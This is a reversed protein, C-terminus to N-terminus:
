KSFSKMIFQVLKNTYRLLTVTFSWLKKYWALIPSIFPYFVNKYVNVLLPYTIQYSKRFREAAEPFYDFASTVIKYMALFISKMSSETIVQANKILLEEGDRSLEYCSCCRTFPVEKKKWELHWNVITTLDVGEYINDINFEINQGMSAILQELFKLVEKRGQFSQPFSFDHFFCDESILLALQNLDKNNLSSYYKRITNSTSFSGKGIDPNLMSLTVLSRKKSRICGLKFKQEYTKGIAANQAKLPPISQHNSCEPKSLLSQWIIQGSFAM